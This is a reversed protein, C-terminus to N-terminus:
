RGIQIGRVRMKFAWPVIKSDGLCWNELLDLRWAELGGIKRVQRPPIRPANSYHKTNHYLALM